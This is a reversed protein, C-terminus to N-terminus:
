VEVEMYSESPFESVSGLPKLQGVESSIHIQGNVDIRSADPNYLYILGQVKGTFQHDTCNLFAVERQAVHM